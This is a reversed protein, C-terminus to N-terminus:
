NSPWAAIGGQAERKLRSTRASSQLVYHRSSGQRRTRAQEASGPVASNGASLSRAVTSSRQWRQLERIIALLFEQAPIIAGDLRATFGGRRVTRRHELSRGALGKLPGSAG